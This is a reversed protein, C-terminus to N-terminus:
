EAEAPVLFDDGLTESPVVVLPEGMVGGVYEIENGRVKAL